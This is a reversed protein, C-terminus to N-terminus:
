PNSRLTAHVLDTLASVPDAGTGEPGVTGGSADCSFAIWETGPDRDPGHYVVGCLERDDPLERETRRWADILTQHMFIAENSMPGLTDLALDSPTM